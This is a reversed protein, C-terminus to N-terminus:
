KEPDNNCSYLMRTMMLMFGSLMEKPQLALDM